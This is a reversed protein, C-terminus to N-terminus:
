RSSLPSRASGWEAAMNLASLAVKFLILVVLFWVIIKSLSDTSSYVSAIHNVTECIAAITLNLLYAALILAAFMMAMCSVIGVTFVSALVLFAKGTPLTINLDQGPLTFNPTNM